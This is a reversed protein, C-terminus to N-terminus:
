ALAQIKQVPYGGDFSDSVSIVAGDLMLDDVLITMTSGLTMTESYPITTDIIKRPVSYLTRLRQAVTEADSESDFYTQLVPSDTYTYEAVPTISVEGTPGESAAFASQAATAAPKAQYNTWNRRYAYKVPNYLRDSETWSAGDILSNEDYVTGSAPLPYQAATFVGLRDILWYGACGQTLDNLVRGLTTDSTIYYGIIGTPLSISRTGLIGAVDLLNGVILATTSLWTGSVKGGEVDCTIKGVPSGTLTFRGNSLDKVYQAGSLTVGDDYVALIDNIAGNHVTYELLGPDSLVPEINRCYGWCQPTVTTVGAVTESVVIPKASVAASSDIIEITRNGDSDGGLRNITGVALTVADSLPFLNRPAAVKVTVQSGRPLVMVASGDGATSSYNCIDDSLTITGFGTSANGDFVDNLTRRFEPMGNGGIIPSYALNPPTDTSETIYTDDSIRYCTANIDTRQIDLLLIRKADPKTFYDTITM